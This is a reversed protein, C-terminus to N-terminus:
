QPGAERPPGGRRGARSAMMEWSRALQDPTLVTLADRLDAHAQERMKEIQASPMPPPGQRVAPAAGNPPPAPRDAARMSDMSARMTNRRDATRRAVAALRTVQADTLKLEGAQALLMAAADLRPPGAEPPPPNNAGNMPGRMEAGSPPSMPPRGPGQADIAPAAALLTAFLLTSRISSTM